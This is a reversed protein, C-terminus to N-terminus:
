RLGLVKSHSTKLEALSGGGILLPSRQLRAKEEMKKGIHIEGVGSFRVSRKMRGAFRGAM